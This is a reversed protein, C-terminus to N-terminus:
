FPKTLTINTINGSSRDRTAFEWQSRINLLLPAKPFIVGFEPGIAYAQDHTKRNWTVGTGSDDTVQWQCSGTLGPEFVVGAEPYTKGLGWEFHFDNGPTVHTKTNATHVEYRGLVSLHWSKEPDLYATGGFTSMFTFMNKGPSAPRAVSYDGTPLYMGLGVAADYRKGHWSLLLPEIWIDGLGFRTNNVGAAAVTLNTNITPIIIDCGYDAGLFKLPSIYIFRHAAAWVTVDFGVPLANGAGDKLTKATYFANYLRYYMGPPPLTAAKLGELGNVYHGQVQAPAPVTALALALGLLVRRVM